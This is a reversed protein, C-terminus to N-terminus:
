PREEEGVKEMYGGRRRYVRRRNKEMKALVEAELDISQIEALGLLYICVDALEEGLTPLGRHYADFAEALEGQLLCFELEVNTVNFGHDLKNQYAARQLAKLGTM